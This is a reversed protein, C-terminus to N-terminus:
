VRERYSARGIERTSADCLLDRCEDEIMKDLDDVFTALNRLFEGFFQFSAGLANGQSSAPDRPRNIVGARAVEDEHEKVSDLLPAIQEHLSTLERQM